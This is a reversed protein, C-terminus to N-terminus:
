HPIREPAHKMLIAVARAVIENRARELKHVLAYGDRFLDGPIVGSVEAVSGLTLDNVDLTIEIVPGEETAAQSWPANVIEAASDLLLADVVVLDHKADATERFKWYCRGVLYKYM